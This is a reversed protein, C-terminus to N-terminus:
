TAIRLEIDHEEIEQRLQDDIRDTVIVDIEETTAFTAFSRRGLKEGGCLLIVRAAIGIMARKTEATHLDPTSAGDTISFSNAGMFAKDVRLRAIMARGADGVTSHFHRRLTGGMVVVSIGECEELTLAIKMDNTVVTLLKRGCLERALELTTSGTDLAITDGDDILSLAALAIRKKEPVHESERAAMDPEFGAQERMMAGGHTRTIKGRLDLDRLDNRVTASSVSFHDCLQQVTAKRHLSLYDIIQLKRERAFLATSDMSNEKSVIKEGDLKAYLIM